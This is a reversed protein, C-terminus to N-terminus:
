EYYGQKVENIHIYSDWAMENIGKYDKPNFEEFPVCDHHSISLEKNGVMYIAYAIHKVAELERKMTKMEAESREKRKKYVELFLESSEDVEIKNTVRNFEGIYGKEGIEITLDENIKIHTEGCGECIGGAVICWGNIKIHNEIVDIKDNILKEYNIDGYYCFSCFDAM